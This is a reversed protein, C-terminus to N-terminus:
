GPFFALCFREPCFAASELYTAVFEAYTSEDGRPPLLLEEQGLVMRIEDFEAAGIAQIRGRVIAPTLRGAAMSTELAVHVRAHFLLRWCRILLTAAPTDAFERPGPRALLIVRKRCRPLSTWVLSRRTSSKWFRRAALSMARGTRRGILAFGTLRRDQKILAACIRPLILFAMPDAARVANQLEEPTLRSAPSEGSPEPM